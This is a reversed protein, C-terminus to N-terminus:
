RRRRLQAVIALANNAIEADIIPTIPDEMKRRKDSLWAPSFDKLNFDFVQAVTTEEIGHKCAESVSSGIKEFLGERPM